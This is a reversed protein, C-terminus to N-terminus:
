KIFKSGFCTCNKEKDNLYNTFKIPIENLYLIFIENKYYDKKYYKFFVFNFMTFNHERKFKKTDETEYTFSSSEIPNELKHFDEMEDCTAIWVKNGNDPNVLDDVFFGDDLVSALKQLDFRNESLKFIDFLDM